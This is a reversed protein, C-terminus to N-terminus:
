FISWSVPWFYGSVRSFTSLYYVDMGAPLEVVLKVIKFLFRKLLSFWRQLTLSARALRCFFITQQRTFSLPSSTCRGHQLPTQTLFAEVGLGVHASFVAKILWNRLFLIFFSHRQALPRRLYKKTQNMGCKWRKSKLIKTVKTSHSEKRTKETKGM